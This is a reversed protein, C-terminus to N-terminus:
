KFYLIEINLPLVEAGLQHMQTYNVQSLVVPSLQNSDGVLIYSSIHYQLPVLSWAETCQSAEDLFCVDFQRVFRYVLIFFCKSTHNELAISFVPYINRGTKYQEIVLIYRINRIYKFHRTIHHLLPETPGVALNKKHTHGDM